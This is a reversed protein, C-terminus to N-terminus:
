LMLPHQELLAAPIYLRWVNFKRFGTELRLLTQKTEQFFEQPVDRQMINKELM